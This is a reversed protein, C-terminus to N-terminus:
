STDPPLPLRVFPRYPTNPLGATQGLMTALGAWFHAARTEEIPLDHLALALARFCAALCMADAISDGTPTPDPLGVIVFGLAQAEAMVFERAFIQAPRLVWLVFRRVAASRGCALDALMALAVLMEVIRTLVQRNEEEGNWDM